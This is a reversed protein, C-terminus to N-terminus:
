ALSQNVPSTFFSSNVHGPDVGAIEIRGGGSLAILASGDASAGVTESQGQLDIRDGTSQDFGLILDNGSNQGVTFLDPGLGGTMTDDGLGGILTDAGQGGFLADSGQGGFLRDDGLNGYIQDAGLNGYVADDNKGGYVGDSGQGGFLVDAGLNGYVLDQGLNGYVIDDGAGGTVTDDGGGASVTDNGSSAAIMQSGADTSLLLGQSGLGEVTSIPGSITASASTQLTHGDVVNIQVNNELNLVVSVVGPLGGGSLAITKAGTQADPVAFDGNVTSISTAGDLSVSLGAVGEGVSYFNDGDKDDYAVGTVFSMPDNPIGFDETIMSSNYAVGNPMYTGLVQAIGIEQYDPDLINLRHGRGPETSDVFLGYNESYILNTASIAGTSGSFAINEGVLGAYGAASARSQPTSGTKPDVHAFYNGSIMAQSHALAAANLQDSFALPQAPSPSLTNVPLGENLAIGSIAAEGMPDLRARNILQLLLVDQATAM